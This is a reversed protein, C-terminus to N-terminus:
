KLDERIREVVLRWASAPSYLKKAGRHCGFITKLGSFTSWGSVSISFQLNFIQPMRDM